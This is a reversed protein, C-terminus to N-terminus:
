IDWPRIIQEMMQDWTLDQLQGDLQFSLRDETYKRARLRVKRVVQSSLEYRRTSDWLRNQVKLM